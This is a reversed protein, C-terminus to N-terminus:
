HRKPLEAPGLALSMAIQQAEAIEEPAPQENGVYTALIHDRNDTLIWVQMRPAKASRFVATGFVGFRCVGNTSELLRGFQQGFCVTFKRLGEGDLKPFVKDGGYEAWSVQLVSTSGQRSFSAPGPLDPRSVWNTFLQVKLRITNTAAMDTYDGAIKRVAEYPTPDSHRPPMPELPVSFSESGCKVDLSRHLAADRSNRHMIDMVCGNADEYWDREKLEYHYPPFPFDFSCVGYYTTGASYIGQSYVGSQVNYCLTVLLAQM